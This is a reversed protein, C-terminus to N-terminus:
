LGWLCTPKTREASYLAWWKVSMGSKAQFFNQCIRLINRCTYVWLFFANSMSFENETEILVNEGCMESKQPHFLIIIHVWCRGSVALIDAIYKGSYSHEVFMALAQPLWVIQTTSLIQAVIRGFPPM